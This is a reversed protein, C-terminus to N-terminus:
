QREFAGIDPKPDRKHGRQDKGPANKDAHGIAPSGAKLAITKTPGGNAALKGLKPNAAVFDSKITLACDAPDATLNHGKSILADSEGSCEPDNPAENLAVISNEVSITAGTGQYVGGGDGSANNDQDAINRAVTVANLTVKSSGSAFIGGGNNDAANGAITSNVLHVTSDSAYIGGGSGSTHNNAITTGSIRADTINILDLGSSDKAASGAFTSDTIRAKGDTTELAAYKSGTVVTRDINVNGEDFEEIGQSGSGSVLSRKVTLNGAGFEEVGQDVANKIVANTLVLSGDDFEEIAQFGSGTLKAGNAVLNGGGLEEIGQDVYNRAVVRNATVNGGDFEEVAQFGGSFTGDSVKVNGGGFEEVGQDQVGTASVGNATLNGAEFEEIAQFGGKFSGGNATVDGAGFEEIGQDQYDRAVLDNARVDGNDFEEIAQFGNSLKARDASVSGADFEEIGQNAVGSIVARDASIDGAGLEEIGENGGTVKARDAVVGGDGDEHLASTLPDAAITAGPVKLDGDGLETIAGGLNGSVKARKLNISGADTEQVGLGDNNVVSVKDGSVGGGLAQSIVPADGVNGTVTTRVLSLPAGSARIAEGLADDGASLSTDGRTLKLGILTLPATADFIRDVQGGDVTAQKKPNTATITAPSTIDLDGTAAQEEGIGPIALTYAHKSKLVITDKGARANAAIVAERLTCGSATCGNPPTDGQATVTFTKASAPAAPM